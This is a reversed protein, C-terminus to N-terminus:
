EDDDDTISASLAAKYQAMLLQRAVDRGIGMAADTDYAWAHRPMRTNMAVTVANIRTAVTEILTRTQKDNSM